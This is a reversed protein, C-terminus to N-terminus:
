IRRFFAIHEKKMPSGELFAVLRRHLERARDRHAAIVNRLCGPDTELDYLEPALTKGTLPAVLRRDSDMCATRDDPDSSGACGYVLLWRGDAVSARNAPEPKSWDPQSLAPASVAVDTVGPERGRLVPWLSPAMFTPPARVGLFDLVAAGLHLTQVLGDVVAGPTSGPFRALLPVRCLEGYLPLMQALGPRLVFKGIYGHEGLYFGHDATYLVLTNEWLGLEGVQDLLYGVWRDVMTAEAAYLARCHRLEAESLFDRWRDYRPYIVEEGRYGADYKEIYYRPPDWPEHPDYTDVYLFFPQRRHSQNELWAAADRMTRACFYDDETRRDSVNRLYQTVVAAGHRLKRPDCPLRVREPRTPGPEGEQGRNLHVFDFNRQYNNPDRFPGVTDAVLATYVGAPRLVDQLTVSSPDLTPWFSPQCTFTPRGTLVDRRAPVTPFSSLYANACRVGAQALADLRPTRVWRGGYCGLADRRMSDTVILIVNRRRRRLALTGAIGGAVACAAAAALFRRRTVRHASM